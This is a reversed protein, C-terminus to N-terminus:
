ASGGICISRRTTRICTWGCSACAGPGMSGSGGNPKLLVPYDRPLAQAGPQLRIPQQGPVPVGLAGLAANVANKDHCLNLCAATAGAFPVEFMELLAPVHAQLRSRNRFGGNCFNLAFEPTAARLAEPLAAHDDLVRARWGELRDVAAYLARIDARDHEGFIADAKYDSPLRPDALLILLERPASM